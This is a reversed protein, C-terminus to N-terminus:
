QIGGDPQCQPGSPYKARVACRCADAEAKTGAEAICALQAEADAAQNTTWLSACAVLLACGAACALAIVLSERHPAKM